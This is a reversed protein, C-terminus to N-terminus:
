SGLKGLRFSIFCRSCIIPDDRAFSFPHHTVSSSLSREEGSETLTQNAHLHYTQTMFCFYNTYNVYAPRFNARNWCSILSSVNSTVLHLDSIVALVILGCVTYKRNIRDIHDDDSSRGHLLVTFCFTILCWYYDFGIM